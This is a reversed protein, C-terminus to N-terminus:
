VTVKRIEWYVDEPRMPTRHMRVGLADYIANGIVAAPPAM